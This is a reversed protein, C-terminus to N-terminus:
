IFEDWCYERDEKTFGCCIDSEEKERLVDSAEAAIDILQEHGEATQHPRASGM